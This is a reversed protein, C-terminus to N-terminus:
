KDTYSDKRFIIGNIAESITFSIRRVLEDINKVDINMTELEPLLDKNNKNITNIINNIDKSTEHNGKNHSGSVLIFIIFSIVALLILGIILINQKKM